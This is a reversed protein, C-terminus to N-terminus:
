RRVLTINREVTEGNAVHITITAPLCGPNTFTLKHSGARVKLNVIPTSGVTHGDVEVNSWPMSQLQLLGTGHPRHDAGSPENPALTAGSPENPPMAAGSPAVTVGTPAITVGTPATTAGTPATTVGTPAPTAGSPPAVQVGSPAGPTDVLEPPHSVALPPDVDHASQRPSVLRVVAAALAIATAISAIWIPLQRKRPVLFTTEERPMMATQGAVALQTLESPVPTDLTDHLEEAPPEDAPPEAAVPEAAVPEAAPAASPAVAEAPPTMRGSPTRRVASLKHAATPPESSSPALPELAAGGTTARMEATPRESTAAEAVPTETTTTELRVHGSVTKEGTQPAAAPAPVLDTGVSLQTQEANSFAADVVTRADYLKMRERMLTREEAFLSSMFGALNGPGFGPSRRRLALELAEALDHGDKYRQAPDRQMGRDIIPVIDEPILEAYKDREPAHGARVMRLSETENKAHFAPRLVTLELLITALSFLDSRHDVREGSAQEPSMYRPTGRLEGVRTFTTRLRSAARAVGFDTLKVIGDYSVLVNSPTVDRHVISLAQGQADALKHAYALARAVQAVIYFACDHPVHRKREVCRRMVRRLDQGEVLEMALFYCGDEEGFEYTSVINPHSLQMALRAEDVFMERVEIQRSVESLVRKLALFRSINMPGALRAMYVEAMGGRGIEELLEYRGYVDM